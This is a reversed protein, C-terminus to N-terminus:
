SFRLSHFKSVLTDRHADSVGVKAEVVKSATCLITQTDKKKCRNAGCHFMCVGCTVQEWLCATWLTRSQGSIVQAVIQSRAAKLRLCRLIKSTSIYFMLHFKSTGRQGVARLHDSPTDPATETETAPSEPTAVAPTAKGHRWVLNLCNTPSTPCSNIGHIKLQVASWSESDVINVIEHHWIM